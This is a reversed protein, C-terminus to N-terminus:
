NLSKLIEPAVNLINWAVAMWVVGNGIKMAKDVVYKGREESSYENAMAYVGLILATSAAKLILGEQSNEPIKNLETALGANLSISTIAVDMINGLLFMNMLNKEKM